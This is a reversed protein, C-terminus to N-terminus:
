TMFPLLCTVVMAPASWLASSLLADCTWILALQGSNKNEIETYLGSAQCQPNYELYLLIKIKIVATVKTTNIKLM